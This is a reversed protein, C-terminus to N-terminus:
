HCLVRSAGMAAKILSRLVVQKNKKDADNFYYAAFEKRFSEPIKQTQSDFYILDPSYNDIVEKLQGIWDKNNLLVNTLRKSIINKNKRCFEDITTFTEIKPKKLIEKGLISFAESKEEDSLSSILTKLNM